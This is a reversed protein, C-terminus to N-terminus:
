KQGALIFVVEPSYNVVDRAREYISDMPARGLFWYKQTIGDSEYIPNNNHDFALGNKLDENQGVQWFQTLPVVKSNGSGMKSFGGSGYITETKSWVMGTLEVLKPQWKVGETISNGLTVLKLGKLRGLNNIKDENKTFHNESQSIGNTTIALFLYLIVNKLIIFYTCRNMLKVKKPNYMNTKAEQM